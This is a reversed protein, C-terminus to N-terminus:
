APPVQGSSGELEGVIVTGSVIEGAIPDSGTLLRDLAALADDSIDDIMRGYVNITTQIDEHGLRRQMEPLSVLKTRELLAVHTHRLWHPTVPRDVGAATRIKPMTRHLFNSQYWKRGAANTFILDAPAKGVMRRRVIAATSSALRVRRRAAESKAEDEVLVIRDDEDRRFVRDVSVYVQGPGYDEVGAVTLAAGESWRWGTGVLFELLDAADPNLRRATERLAVWEAPTAGKPPKKRRKPLETEQCPNHDVIRRTKASAWKFIQHLIMHRDAVSKPELQGAMHDVVQQVDTEDISAARRHGLHPSIWNAYDRRYDKLTRATIERREAKWAFFTKALEDLTPGAEETAALEALARDAGLIEVLAEFKEAAKRTAFTRSTQAGNHRYLVAYTVGNRAKNPRERISAM